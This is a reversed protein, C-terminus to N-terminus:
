VLGAFYLPPEGPHDGPESRQAGSVRPKIM